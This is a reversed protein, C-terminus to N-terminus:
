DNCGRETTEQCQTVTAPTETACDVSNCTGSGREVLPSCQLGMQSSILELLELEVPM